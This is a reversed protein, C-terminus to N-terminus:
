ISYLLIFSMKPILMLFQILNTIATAIDDDSVLKNCATHGFRFAPLRM